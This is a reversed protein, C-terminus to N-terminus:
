RAGRLKRYKSLRSSFADQWSMAGGSGAGSKSYSYGSFSESNFPSMAASTAQGYQAQWASIDAALSIVTKPVAMLWVSGKFEEDTLDNTPCLHVGNNFTSGMIRFYQGDKLGDVEISGNSIVFTGEIKKVWFYNNLYECMETLVIEM